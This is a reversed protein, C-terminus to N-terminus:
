KEPLWFEIFKGDQTKAADIKRDFDPTCPLPADWCRDGEPVYLLLGSDTTHVRLSEHKFSSWQNWNEIQLARQFPKANLLLVMFVIWFVSAKARESRKFITFTFLAVIGWLAGAAVNGTISLVILFCGIGLAAPRAWTGHRTQASRFIDLRSIRLVGQCFILIGFSFLFGYGFRPAPATLFWFAIGLLCVLAPMMVSPAPPYPRHNKWAAALSFVIGFFLLSLMLKERVVHRKLWPTLWNWNSLTELGKPGPHRAWAIIWDRAPKARHEPVTWEAHNLCVVRSPFFLCGSLCLGRAAWLVLLLFIALMVRRSFAGGLSQYRTRFDDSSKDRGPAGQWVRVFLLVFICPLLPAISMKITVAFTCLVAAMQLVAVKSRGGEWYDTILYIILFTMLMVPLDPSPANMCDDIKSAWPIATLSLFLRSLSWDNSFCRSAALFIASGYFFMAISNSLFHPSHAKLAPLEILSALPFWSSNFGFRHHLNALGLPLPSQNLWKISQFHYLGTDYCELPTMPVLSVYFLLVVLIAKDSSHIWSVIQRCNLLFLTAGLLACISSVNGDVPWFFNTAVAITSFGALGLFGWVAIRVEHKLLSNDSDASFGLLRALASGLGVAAVIWGLYVSFVVLYAL